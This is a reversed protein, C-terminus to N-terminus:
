SEDDYLVVGCVECRWALLFKTLRAYLTLRTSSCNPCIRFM